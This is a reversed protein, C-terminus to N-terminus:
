TMRLVKEPDHLRKVTVPVAAGHVRADAPRDRLTEYGIFVACILGDPIEFVVVLRIGLHLADDCLGSLIARIRKVYRPVRKLVQKGAGRVSGKEFAQELLAYVARYLM